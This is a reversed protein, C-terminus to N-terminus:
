FVRRETNSYPRKDWSRDFKAGLALAIIIIILMIYFAYRILKESKEDNSKRIAIESEWGLTEKKKKLLKKQTRTIRKM